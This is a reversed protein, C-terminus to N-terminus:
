AKSEGQTGEGGPGVLMAVKNVAEMMGMGLVVALHWFFQPM